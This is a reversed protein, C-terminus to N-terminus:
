EVLRGLQRRHEAENDAISPVASSRKRGETLSQNEAIQKLYDVGAAITMLVSVSFYLAGGGIVLSGVLTYIPGGEYTGYGVMMGGIVEALITLMIATSVKDQYHEESENM